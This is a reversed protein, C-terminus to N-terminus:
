ESDIVISKCCKHYCVKDLLNISICTRQNKSELEWNEVLSDVEEVEWKGEELMWCFNLAELVAAWAKGM